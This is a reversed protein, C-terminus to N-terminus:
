PVEGTYPGAGLSRAGKETLVRTLVADWSDSPLGDLIEREYVVGYTSELAQDPLAELLRDYYGGGQGLRRGHVDFALAPVLRVGAELFLESGYRTGAPEVIGLANTQMPAGPEWWCWGLERGPLVVPVTVLYGSRHLETLAPLIPPESGFPLFAVVVSGSGTLGTVTELIHATFASSPVVPATKRARRISARLFDKHSAISTGAQKHANTFIM